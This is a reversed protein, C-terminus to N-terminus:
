NESKKSVKSIYGGQILDYKTLIKIWRSANKRTMIKEYNIGPDRYSKDNKIVSFVVGMMKHGVAVILRKHGRRIVLPQYKGKFQSNTKVASNALECVLAKVYTNTKKTHSSKKGASQNNSPCLGMWSCFKEKNEFSKVNDGIEAILIAASLTDIGSIRQLLQWQRKYPKM